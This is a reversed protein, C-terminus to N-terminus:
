RRLMAQPCKPGVDGPASGKAGMGEPEAGPRPGCPRPEAALPDPAAAASPLFRAGGAWLLGGMGGGGGAGRHRGLWLAPPNQAPWCAPQDGAPDLRGPLAELARHALAKLLVLQQRQRARAATSRSPRRPCGRTHAWVAAAQWPRSFKCARGRSCAEPSSIAWRAPLMANRKASAQRASQWGGAITQGSPQGTPDAGM